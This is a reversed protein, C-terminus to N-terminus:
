VKSNTLLNQLIELIKKEDYAIGSWNKRVEANDDFLIDNMSYCYNEKPTGYELIQINDWIVSPLHKQLWQRKVKTVQQNYQANGNKALWTIIQLQYGNEQLDNLIKALQSFNCSPKAKTYPVTISNNIDELWNPSDYMKNITGDMDFSITINM